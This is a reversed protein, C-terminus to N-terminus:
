SNGSAIAKKRIWKRIIKEIRKPDFPKILFDDIGSERAKLKIKEISEGTVAIIPVEKNGLARIKKATDFGDLEPINIDMLIIDFVEEMVCAIAAWGNEAHSVKQGLRELIYTTFRTNVPNDEVLLIHYSKGQIQGATDLDSASDIHIVEEGKLLPLTLTFVSGKGATSAVKIDGNHVEVIEKVISMGLGTGMEGTTGARSTRSYKNFLDPIMEQEIGIGTDSVILDIKSNGSAELSLAVEKGSSTFKVANSLLNNIARMLSSRNGSIIANKCNDNLKFRIKKSDAMNKMAKFCSEALHSANIPKMSIEEAGSQIKSLDLIDNILDMLFVGSEKIDKLGEKDDTEIYDKELLIDTFGLIGHLPSRLDHSCVAILDDKMANLNSLEKVSARLRQTLERRELHVLIRAVLEEKIFPKILYDSGGCKFLELLRTQDTEATLFIIPLDQLDLEKRVKEVLQDGEMVPMNLDTILIDIESMRNCIMEFAQMGDEAEIVDIGEQNLAKKVTTRATVADDVVLALLNKLTKEPYLIKNVISLLLGKDFPKCIFDVAGLDYGKKRDEITDRTTIFIVPPKQEQRHSFSAAYEKESLKKFVEFGSLGPMEIDMTILDPPDQERMYNLANEGSDVESIIFDGAKLEERIIRRIMASDDVILIRKPESM